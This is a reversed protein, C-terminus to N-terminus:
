FMGQESTMVQSHNINIKGYKVWMLPSVVTNKGQHESPIVLGLGLGVSLHLELIGSPGTM